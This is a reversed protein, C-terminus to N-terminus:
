WSAMTIGPMEGQMAYKRFCCRCLKFKKYVGRPRGCQECRVAGHSKSSKRSLKTLKRSANEKEEMTADPDNIIVKYAKRKAQLKENDALKNCKKNRVIKCVRPM